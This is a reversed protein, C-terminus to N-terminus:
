GAPVSSAVSPGEQCAAIQSPKPRMEQTQFEAYYVNTGPILVSKTNRFGSARLECQLLNRPVGHRGTPQDRDVIVVKGGPKLAPWINWLFGYPQKVEHYMHILFVRDFSDKPLRPNTDTGHRIAVNDLKENQVLLGLKRLVTEDIDEALVRGKPGVMPALLRTYYGEGAGVDAVTMGPKLEALQM